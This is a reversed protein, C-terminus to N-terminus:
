KGTLSRIAKKIQEKRDAPLEHRLWVSLTGPSINLVAAVEYHKFRNLEIMDRIDENPKVM